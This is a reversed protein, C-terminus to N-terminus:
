PGNEEKQTLELVAEGLRIFDDMTNYVQTSVRVMLQGELIVVCSSVDFRDLILKKLEFNKGKSVDTGESGLSDSFRPIFPLQLIRICPAKMNEPIALCKTGWKEELYKIGEAMLTSNYQVIKEQIIKFYTLLNHMMHKYVHVNFTSISGLNKLSLLVNFMGGLREYYYIGDASCVYSTDDRTGEHAFADHLSENDLTSTVLPKFWAHHRKPNTWIFACARPCFLWKHLNGTYFDADIDQVDVKLQGPIHAADVVIVMGHQHCVEVIHKVPLVISSPSTIHDEVRAVTAASIMKVGVYTLSTILFADSKQLPFSKLVTNIARTVNQVLFTDETHIGMFTAVKATSTRLYTCVNYRFWIDPHSELETLYRAQREHVYRPISGYAGHNLFVSNERLMFEKRIDKGFAPVVDDKSTTM